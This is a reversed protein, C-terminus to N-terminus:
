PAFPVMAAARRTRSHPLRLPESTSFNLRWGQGGHAVDLRALTTTDTHLRLGAGYSTKDLNLDSFRPAVNGADVFLAADVHTWVAFRSEANLVLANRDHFQYDHYDRLTRSGGIAPLLYAPIDRGDQQQAAIAWGHLAFVVRGDAVPIYHLAEGEWTHFTYFDYTRDWYNTLAGRYFFGHKPYGRHDRTDASIAAESHLLAPQVSLSVAPDAPFSDRTFPFDRKFTGGPEMFKPHGLWGVTGGITLWDKPTVNAYGVIDHTQLRYQSRDDESVDPGIGFYSVQTADQWAVQTGLVLHGNALQPLEFRAQAVKYFRWSLAASTEFVANDDAFYHRYGPGASVWGSGTIMNSLEPYFGNKPRGAHDGFRQNAFDIASSLVVPETMFGVPLSPTLPSPPQAAGGSDSAASTAQAFVCHKVPGILMFLTFFVVLM